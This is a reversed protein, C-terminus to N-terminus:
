NSQCALHYDKILKEQTKIAELSSHKLIKKKKESSLDFYPTKRVVKKKFISFM